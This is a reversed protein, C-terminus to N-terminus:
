GASGGAEYLETKPHFDSWAFWFSYFSPLRTLAMGALEGDIARGTLLQWTSGTERDKMLSIGDGTDPLIDFGLSRGELNRDFIAATESPLDLVVLVQTGSISDNILPENAIVQFPYAKAKGELVVDKGPLRRDKNSEGIIGASGSLYYGQYSDSNYRGGKDLLQTDPHLELWQEWSTQLSPVIELQTGSLPGRVGPEPVPEVPHRDAPRVHGARVHNAQRVRRLHPHHRRHQPCICHGHLLPTVM